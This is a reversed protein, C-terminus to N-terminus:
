RPGPELRLVASKWDRASLAFLFHGTGFVRTPGAIVRVAFGRQGPPLSLNGTASV